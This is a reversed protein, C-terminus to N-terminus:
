ASIIFDVLPLINQSFNMKYSFVYSTPRLKEREVLGLLCFTHNKPFHFLSLNEGWFSQVPSQLLGCRWGGLHVSLVKRRRWVDQCVCMGKGERSYALTHITAYRHWRPQMLMKQSWSMRGARALVTVVVSINTNSLGVSTSLFTDSVLATVNFLQFWPKNIDKDAVYILFHQRNSV